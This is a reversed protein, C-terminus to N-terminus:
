EVKDPKKMVVAEENAEENIDASPHAEEHPAALVRLL